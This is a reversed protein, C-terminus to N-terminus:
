ARRYTKAYQGTEPVHLPPGVELAGKQLLRSVAKRAATVSVDAKEALQTATLPERTAANIVRDQMTGRDAPKKRETRHAVLGANRRMAENCTEADAKMKVSLLAEFRAHLRPGLPKGASVIACLNKENAGVQRAADSISPFRMGLIVVPKCRPGFERRHDIKSM